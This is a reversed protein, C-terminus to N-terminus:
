ESGSIFKSTIEKRWQKYNNLCSTCCFYHRTDETKLSEYEDSIRKGCYECKVNLQTTNQPVKHPKSFVEVLVIQIKGKKVSQHTQLKEFIENHMNMSQFQTIVVINYEDLVEFVTKIEELEELLSLFLKKEGSIVQFHLIASTNTTFTHPNLYVGFSKIVGKKVLNDIRSKVTPVTIRLEEALESYTARGKENLRNLITLDSADLDINPM